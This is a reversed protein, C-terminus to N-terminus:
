SKIKIENELSSFLINVSIENNNKNEITLLM